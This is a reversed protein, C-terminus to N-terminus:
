RMLKSRTAIYLDNGGYGGTRLSYFYLTTGDFSLAPAGDNDTSNMPAGLNLAASWSDSTSNRTSVWVDLGGLGGTRNSTIFMELGNRSISTRTDRGVSSMETVLQGIGFTGDAQLVSTYIDWDGINGPRNLSTFYLTTV